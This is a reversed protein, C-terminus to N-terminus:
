SGRWLANFKDRLLPSFTVVELTINPPYGSPEWQLLRIDGRHSVRYTEQVRSVQFVSLLLTLNSLACVSFHSDKKKKIPIKNISTDLLNM